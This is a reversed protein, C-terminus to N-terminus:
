APPLVFLEPKGARKLAETLAAKTEETNAIKILRQILEKADEVKGAGALAEIQASLDVSFMGLIKERMEEDLATWRPDKLDMEFKDLKAKLEDLPRMELADAYRREKLFVPFLGEGLVKRRPDNKPVKDYAALWETYSETAMSLSVFDSVAELDKADTEIVKLQAARRAKLAEAAPAHTTAVQALVQVLSGRRLEQGEPNKLGTDYLWLLEVVADPFQRCDMLAQALRLRAQVKANEDTGKLAETAATKARSISTDGKLIGTMLELFQDPPLFGNIRDVISGDPNLVLLTPYSEIGYKEALATEKEADYRLSVMKDKLLAAVAPDPFTTQDLMKCPGCWVAYFDVFVLKKSAEAKKFAAEIPGSSFIEALVKETDASQEASAPVAPPAPSPEAANLPLLALGCLALASRITNSFDM